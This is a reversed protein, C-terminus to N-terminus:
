DPHIARCQRAAEAAQRRAAPERGRMQALQRRQDQLDVAVPIEETRYGTQACAYDGLHENWCTSQYEYPVSQRHIAYGRVLNGEIRAIGSLIAAHERGADDLCTELPTSCAALLGLMAAPALGRVAPKM